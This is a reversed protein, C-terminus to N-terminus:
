GLKDGSTLVRAGSGDHARARAFGTLRILRVAALLNTLCIM